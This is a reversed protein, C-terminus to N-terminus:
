FYAVSEFEVCLGVPKKSNANQSLGMVKGATKLM